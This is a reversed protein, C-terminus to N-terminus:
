CTEGMREVLQAVANHDNDAVLYKAVAKVEDRANQPAVSMGAVELMERDNLHDGIAAIHQPLIDLAKALRTLCDGKSCGRPLIELYYPSSAMVEFGECAMGARWALVKKELGELKGDPAWFLVKIWEGPTEDLARKQYPQGESAVHPDMVGSPNVLFLPGGCFVQVCLEPDDQILLQILPRLVAADMRRLFLFTKAERDYIVAGNYLIIPANIPLEDAAFCCTDETRGTAITFRGGGAVFREIAAKNAKSISKDSSLLTGDLDTALLWSEFRRERKEIM